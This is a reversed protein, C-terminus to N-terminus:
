ECSCRPARDTSLNHQPKLGCLSECFGSELVRFLLAICVLLESFPAGTLSAARRAGVAGMAGM